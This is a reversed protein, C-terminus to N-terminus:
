TTTTASCPKPRESSRRVTRQWSKSLDSHRPQRRCTVSGKREVRTLGAVAATKWTRREAGVEPCRINKTMAFTTGTSTDAYAHSGGVGGVRPDGNANVDLDVNFGVKEAYFTKARDVDSAPISVAELKWGM